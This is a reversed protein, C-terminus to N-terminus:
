AFARVLALGGALALLSAVVSIGAYAVAAVTEGRQWLTIFDLSFASFTTFGGLFGTAVLLRLQESASFRQALLEIFVGMLFSGVINVVMTGVPFGAGFLRLSATGVLHRTVSGVAGGAAVILINGM